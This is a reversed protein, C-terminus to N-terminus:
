AAPVKEHGAGDTGKKAAPKRRQALRPKPEPKSALAIMGRGTKKFESGTYLAAAVTAGPTKGSLKVGPMALVEAVIKKVPMPKGARSLAAIAAQKASVKSAM